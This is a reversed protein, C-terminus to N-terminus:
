GHSRQDPKGIMQIHLNAQLAAIVPTRHEVSLASFINTAFTKQWNL